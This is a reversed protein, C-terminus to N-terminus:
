SKINNPRWKKVWVKIWLPAHIYVPLYVKRSFWARFSFPAIKIQEFVSLEPAHPIEYALARATDGCIANAMAVEQRSLQQQWIGINDTNAPKRMSSHFDKLKEIFGHEAAPKEAEAKDFFANVSQHFGEMDPKYEKGVFACVRQLQEEPDAVLDEYRLLMFQPHNQLLYPVATSYAVQWIKALYAAHRSGGLGRKRWTAVIDLYHRTLVIFKTDPLIDLIMKPCYLYKIQKDIILDVKQKDKDKLFNGYLLRCLSLFDLHPLHPLISQKVVERPSFYLDLNKEALLWFEDLLQEIDAETWTTKNKYYPYMYLLFPEESPSLIQEHRNLMATLMSSGSREINLIFYIPANNYM